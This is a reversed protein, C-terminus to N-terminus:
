LCGPEDIGFPHADCAQYKGLQWQQARVFQRRLDGQDRPGLRERKAFRGLSVHLTGATNQSVVTVSPGTLCTAGSTGNQFVVLTFPGRVDTAVTSWGSGPTVGPSIPPTNALQALCTADATSTEQASAATPSPSWGAFAAQSGALVLTLSAGLAVALGPVGIKVLRIRTRRRSRQRELDTGIADRLDARYRELDPHLTNM